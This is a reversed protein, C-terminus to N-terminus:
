TGAMLLPSTLQSSLLSLAAWPRQLECMTIMANKPMIVDLGGSILSSILLIATCLGVLTAGSMLRCRRRYALVQSRLNDSRTADHENSPFDGVANMYRDLAGDYRQQLRTSRAQRVAPKGGLENGKSGTRERGTPASFSVSLLAGM